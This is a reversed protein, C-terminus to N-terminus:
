SLEERLRRFDEAIADDESRRSLDRIRLEEHDLAVEYEADARAEADQVHETLPGWVTSGMIHLRDALGALAHKTEAARFHRELSDLTRQLDARSEQLLAEFSRCVRIVDEAEEVGVKWAAMDMRLRRAKRLADRVGQPLDAVDGSTRAFPAVLHLLERESASAGAIRRSLRNREFTAEVLSGKLERDMEDLQAIVGQAQSASDPDGHSVAQVFHVLREVVGLVESVRAPLDRQEETM